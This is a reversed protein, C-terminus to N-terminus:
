TNREVKFRVSATHGARAASLLSRSARRLPGTRALVAGQRTVSYAAERVPPFSSFERGVRPKIKLVPSDGSPCWCCIHAIELEGVMMNLKMGFQDSRFLPSLVHILEKSQTWHWARHQARVQETVAARGSHPSPTCPVTSRSLSGWAEQSLWLGSSNGVTGHASQARRHHGGSAAMHGCSCLPQLSDESPQCWASTGTPPQRQNHRLEPSATPTGLSPREMPRPPRGARCSPKSVRTGPTPMGLPLSCTSRTWNLVIVLVPWAGHRCFELLWLVGLALEPELAPSIFVGWGWGPAQGSWM